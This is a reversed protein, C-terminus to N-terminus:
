APCDVLSPHALRRCVRGQRSPACVALITYPLDLTRFALSRTDLTALYSEGTKRIPAFWATLRNSLMPLSASFGPRSALSPKWRICAEVTRNRTMGATSTGGAAATPSLTSSGMRRGSPSSSRNASGAPSAPPMPGANWGRRYRCGM